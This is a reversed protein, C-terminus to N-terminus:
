KEYLDRRLPIGAYREKMANLYSALEMPEWNYDSPLLIGDFRGNTVQLAIKRDAREEATLGANDNLAMGVVYLNGGDVPVTSFNRVRQWEFSSAIKGYRFSIGQRSLKLYARGTLVLILNWLSYFLIGTFLVVGVAAAAHVPTEQRFCEGISFALLVAVLTALPEWRKPYHMEASDPASKM